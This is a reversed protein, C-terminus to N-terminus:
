AKGTDAAPEPFLAKYIDAKAKDGSTLIALRKEREEIELELLRNQLKKERVKEDQLNASYEDLAQGQGLMSEVIIGDTRMTNKSVNLIIGPVAFESGTAPDTYVSVKDRNLSNYEVTEDNTKTFLDTHKNGKYDKLNTLIKMIMDRATKKPLPLCVDDLLSDLNYLPVEKKTDPNGNFYGIRIDTLHLINVFEQNMQRFIFNLTASVNINELVRVISTEEGSETAVQSTTNIEVDRKASAKASEKKTASAVNKSMEETASNVSGSVGASASAKVVGINGSGEADAYYNFSKDKSETNSNENQVAEEFESAKEDTYSDLISSAETRTESSKKYTKISITTKEGPLLTFTNITRGAGYSGLFNSLAVSMVIYLSPEAAAPKSIVRTRTHGGMTKYFVLKKNEKILTSMRDKAATAVASLPGALPSTNTSFMTTLRTSGSFLSPQIGGIAMKVKSPIIASKTFSEVSTNIDTDTIATEKPWEFCEPKFTLKPAPSSLEILFKGPYSSPEPVNYSLIPAVGKPDLQILAPM